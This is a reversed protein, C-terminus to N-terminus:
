LNVRRWINYVNPFRVEVMHWVLQRKSPPNGIIM